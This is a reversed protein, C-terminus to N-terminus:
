DYGYKRASPLIRSKPELPGAYQNAFDAVSKKHSTNEQPQWVLTKRLKPQKRKTIGMYESVPKESQGVFSNPSIAIAATTISERLMSLRM